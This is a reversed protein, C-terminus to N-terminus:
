IKKEKDLMGECKTPEEFKKDAQCKATNKSGSLKFGKHCQVIAEDNFYYSKFPDLIHGNDIEPFTSCKIELFINM